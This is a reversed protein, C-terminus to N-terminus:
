PIWNSGLKKQPQRSPRNRRLFFTARVCFSCPKCNGPYLSWIGDRGCSRAPDTNLTHCDTQCWRFPRDSQSFALAPVWKYSSNKERTQLINDFITIEQKRLYYCANEDKVRRLLHFKSYRQRHATRRIVFSIKMMYM